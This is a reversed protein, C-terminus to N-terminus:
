RREIPQNLGDVLMASSEGETMALMLQGYLRIM